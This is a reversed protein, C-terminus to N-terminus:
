NEYMSKAFSVDPKNWDENVNSILLEGKRRTTRIEGDKYEFIEMTDTTIRCPYKTEPHIYLTYEQEYSLHDLTFQIYEAQEMLQDEETFGNNSEFMEDIVARGKAREFEKRKTPDIIIHVVELLQGEFIAQGIYTIEKRCEEMEELLLLPDTEVNRLGKKWNSLSFEEPEFFWGLKELEGTHSLSYLKDETLYYDEDMQLNKDSVASSPSYVQQRYQASFPVYQINGWSKSLISVQENVDHRKSEIEIDFENDMFYSNIDQHRNYVEQWLLDADQVNKLPSQSLQSVMCLAIILMPFVIMCLKKTLNGFNQNRDM